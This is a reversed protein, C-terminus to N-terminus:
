PKAAPAAQHGGQDGHREPSKGAERQLLDLLRERPLKGLEDRPLAAVRRIPRPVFVPDIVGHLREIVAREDLTDSVYLAALREVQAGDLATPAIFVGDDIGDISTLKVNLDGLSARKGAISVQDADRGLLRFSSAGHRELRDALATRVEVHGGEVSWAGDAGVLQMGDYMRWLGTEVTRRSALSGAETCGYIEYVPAALRQEIARALDVSLPATASIVADVGPWDVRAAAISRLHIPTTVLLRRPSGLAAIAEAVDVPFMPRAAHVSCGVVLPYLISTELGYMHQPPVTAVIGVDPTLAFRAAALWAGQQLSRWTKRHAQVDGTSGSTFTIAALRDPDPTFGHPMRPSADLGDLDFAHCPGELDACAQDSLIYSDPFEARLRRVIGAAKSPPLLNVQGRQLIALFATIFAGRGTTLNIAYRCDPLRAALTAARQLVAGRTLHVGAKRWLLPQEQPHSLPRPM